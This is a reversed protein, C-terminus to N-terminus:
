NGNVLGTRVNEGYLKGLERILAKAEENVVQPLVVRLEVILDGRGSRGPM